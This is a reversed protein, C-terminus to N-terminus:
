MYLQTDGVLVAIALHVVRERIRDCVEIGDIVVRQLGAAFRAVRQGDVAVVVVGGRDFRAAHVIEAVSEFITQINNPKHRLAGRAVGLLRLAQDVSVVVVTLVRV